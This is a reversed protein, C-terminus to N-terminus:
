AHRVRHRDALGSSGERLDELANEGPLLDRNRTMALRDGDDDPGVRKARTAGAFSQAIRIPYAIEDGAAPAQLQIRARGQGRLLAVCEQRVNPCGSRLALEFRGHVGEIGVDQDIGRDGVM